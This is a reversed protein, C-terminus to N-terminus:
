ARGLLQPWGTPASQKGSQARIARAARTRHRRPRCSARSSLRGAAPVAVAGEPSWLQHCFLSVVPLIVRSTTIRGERCSHANRLIPHPGPVCGGAGSSQGPPLSARMARRLSSLLPRSTEAGAAAGVRGASAPLECTGAPNVAPNVPEQCVRLEKWTPPVVSPGTERESLWFRLLFFFVLRTLCGM